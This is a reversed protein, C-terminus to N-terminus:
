FHGSIQSDIKVRAKTQCMTMRILRILKQPIRMRDMAGFLRECNICDFVQKFDIFLTHLDLGHENHKEIKQKLVFIQEIISKNIRFGCQYGGIIKETVVEM